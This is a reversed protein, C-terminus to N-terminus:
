DVDNITNLDNVLLDDILLDANKNQKVFKESKKHPTEFIKGISYGLFGAVISGLLALKLAYLVTDYDLSMAKILVISGVTLLTFSSLIGAFKNALKIVNVGM